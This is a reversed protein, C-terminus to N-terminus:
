FTPVNTLQQWCMQTDTDKFFFQLTVRSPPPIVCTPMPTIEFLWLHPKPSDLILWNSEIKGELGKFVASLVVIDFKSPVVNEDLFLSSISAQNHIDIQFYIYFFYILVVDFIHSQWHRTSQMWKYICLVFLITIIFVVIWRNMCLSVMIENSASKIWCLIQFM